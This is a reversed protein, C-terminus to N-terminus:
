GIFLYCLFLVPLASMLASKQFLYAFNLLRGDLYWRATIRKWGGRESRLTVTEADSREGTTLGAAKQCCPVNLAVRARRMERVAHSRSTRGGTGRQGTFPEGMRGPSVHGERSSHASRERLGRPQYPIGHETVILRRSRVTPAECMVKM